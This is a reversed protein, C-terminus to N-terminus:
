EKAADSVSKRREQLIEKPKLLEDFEVWKQASAAKWAKKLATKSLIYLRLQVHKTM